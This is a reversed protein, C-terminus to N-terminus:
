CVFYNLSEKIHNIRPKLEKISRVFSGRSTDFESKLLVQYVYIPLM